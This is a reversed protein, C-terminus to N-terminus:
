SQTEQNELEDLRKRIENLHRQLTDAEQQLFRQEDDQTFPSRGQDSFQINKAINNDFYPRQGPAFPAVCRSRYGLGRGRGFCRGGYIPTRYGSCYGAQRGTMSGM